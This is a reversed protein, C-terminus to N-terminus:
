NALEWALFGLLLLAGAIVWASKLLQFLYGLVSLSRM